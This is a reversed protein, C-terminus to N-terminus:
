VCLRPWFGGVGGISLPPIVGSECGYVSTLASSHNRDSFYFKPWIRYWVKSKKILGNFSVWEQIKGVVLIEFNLDMYDWDSSSLINTGKNGWMKVIAIRNEGTRLFDENSGEGNLESQIKREAVESENKRQSETWKLIRYMQLWLARSHEPEM